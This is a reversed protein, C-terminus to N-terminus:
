AGMGQAPATSPHLCSAGLRAESRCSWPLGWAVRPFLVAVFPGQVQAPQEQTRSKTIAAPRSAALASLGVQPLGHLLPSGPQNFCITSEGGAKAQGERTGLSCRRCGSGSAPGRADGRLEALSQGSGRPGARAGTPFPSGSGRLTQAGAVKGAFPRRAPVLLPCPACVDSGGGSGPLLAGVEGPARGPRPPAARGWRQRGGRGAGPRATM